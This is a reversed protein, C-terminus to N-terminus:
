RIPDIERHNDIVFGFHSRNDYEDEPVLFYKTDGDSARVACVGVWGKPVKAHWSGWAARVVYNNQFKFKFAREAKVYSESEPVVVKFYSEYEDPWWNKVTARAVAVQSAKFHSPFFIMVIAAECDEEYWGSARRFYKPILANRQRDLKFGGHGATSVFSIGEAIERVDQVKGWPSNM